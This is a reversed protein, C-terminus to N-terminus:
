SHPGEPPSTADISGDSGPTLGCVACIRPKRDTMTLLYSGCRVCPSPALSAADERGELVTAIRKLAWACAELAKVGRKDSDVM